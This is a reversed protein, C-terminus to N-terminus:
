FIISYESVRGWQHFSIYFLRDITTPHSRQLEYSKCVIIWEGLRRIKTQRNNLRDPSCNQLRDPCSFTQVSSQRYQLRSKSCCIEVNCIQDTRNFTQVATQRYELSAVKTQLLCQFLLYQQRVKPPTFFPILLQAPDQAGFTM